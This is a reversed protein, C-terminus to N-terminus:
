VSSPLPPCSGSFPVTTVGGQTFFTLCFSLSPSTSQCKQDVNQLQIIIERFAQGLLTHLHACTPHSHTWLKTRVHAHTSVIYVRRPITTLTNLHTSRQTVSHTHPSLRSSFIFFLASSFSPLTARKAYYLVISGGLPMLRDNCGSNTCTVRWHLWPRM